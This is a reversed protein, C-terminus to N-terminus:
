KPNDVDKDEDDEEHVKVKVRVKTSKKLLSLYTEDEPNPATGQGFVTDSSEEVHKWGKQPQELEKNNTYDLTVEDDPVIDKEAYTKYSGDDQKDSRASPKSSHNLNAGFDTIKDGPEFHTNIFEGKRFKKTAFVGKGNIPSPRVVFNNMLDDDYLEYLYKKLM